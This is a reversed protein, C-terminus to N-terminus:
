RAVMGTTLGFFSANFAGPAAGGLPAQAFVFEDASLGGSQATPLNLSNKGIGNGDDHHDVTTQGKKMFSLYVHQSLVGDPKQQGSLYSDTAHGLLLKRY